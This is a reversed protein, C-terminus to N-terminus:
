QAELWYPLSHFLSSAVTPVFFSRSKSITTSATQVTTPGSLLTTSSSSDSFSFANSFSVCSGGPLGRAERNM